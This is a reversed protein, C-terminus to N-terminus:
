LQLARNQLHSVYLHFPSLTQTGASQVPKPKPKPTPTEPKDCGAREKMGNPMAGEGWLQGVAGGRKGFM